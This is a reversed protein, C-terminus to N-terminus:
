LVKCRVKPKIRHIQLPTRKKKKKGEKGEIPDICRHETNEASRNTEGDVHCPSIDQAGNKFKSNREQVYKLHQNPYCYWM